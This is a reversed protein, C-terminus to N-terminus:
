QLAGGPESTQEAPALQSRGRDAGAAHFVNLATLPPLDRDRAMTADELMSSIMEDM